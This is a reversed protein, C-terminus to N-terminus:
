GGIRINLGFESLAGFVENVQEQIPPKLHDLNYELHLRKYKSIGLKHYPLLNIEEIERLKSLFEGIRRISDMDVNVQPILPMRVIVHHDQVLKELNSLILINSVGTYKKHKEEDILKLDYLFLDVLRGIQKLVSWPAFGCTDVTTHLNREKCTELIEHLFEAQFFPEGGSFTVGGDSELYFSRDKEIETLLEKVTIERGIIQLAEPYCDQVCDGCFNCKSDDIVKENV